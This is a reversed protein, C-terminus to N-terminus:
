YLGGQHLLADQLIHCQLPTKIGVNSRGQYVKKLLNESESDDMVFLGVLYFGDWLPDYKELIQEGSTLDFTQIIRDSFNLIFCNGYFSNICKLQKTIKLLNSKM